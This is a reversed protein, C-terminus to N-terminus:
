LHPPRPRFVHPTRRAAHRTGLAPHRTRPEPHPTGPAPRRAALGTKRDSGVWRRWGQRSQEPHGGAKTLLDTFGPLTLNGQCHGLIYHRGPQGREVALIMGRAVDEVPCWNIGGAPYRSVKGKLVDLVLQGSASPRWDGPGLMGTPHVIVVQVGTAAFAEAVREGELKSRVYATPQALNFATEETALSGDLPQGITGITSTHLFRSVGAEHAIGFINRTGEVNVAWMTDLAGQDHAYVAAIHYLTECGTMASRLAAPELVDGTIREIPLGRLLIDNAGPRVLARVEQGAALLERVLAAGLFSNAGTVFCLSM